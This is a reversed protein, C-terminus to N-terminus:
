DKFQRKYPDFPESGEPIFKKHDPHSCLEMSEFNTLFRCNKNEETKCVSHAPLYDSTECDSFDTKWFSYFEEKQETKKKFWGWM